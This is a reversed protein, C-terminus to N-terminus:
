KDWSHMIKKINEFLQTMFKQFTEEVDVSNLIDEFGITALITKGDEEYLSLRCPLYVSIASVQTLAEKAGAPNCIEFVTIDKEIPFGKQELIKKFEYRNLVGFGVEKAKMEIEEKITDVSENVELKYIM